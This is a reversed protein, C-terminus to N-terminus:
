IVDPDDMDIFIHNRSTQAGSGFRRPQRLLPAHLSPLNPSRLFPTYERRPAASMTSQRRRGRASLHCPQLPNYKHPLPHSPRHIPLPRWEQGGPCSRATYARPGIALPGLTTWARMCESTLCALISAVQTITYTMREARGVLYRLLGDSSVRLPPWSIQACLEQQGSGGVRGAM